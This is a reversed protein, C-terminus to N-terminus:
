VVKEAEEREMINMREQQIAHIQNLLSEMSAAEKSRNFLHTAAEMLGPELKM